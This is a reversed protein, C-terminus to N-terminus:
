QSPEPALIEQQAYRSEKSRRLSLRGGRRPSSTTAAPGSPRRCQAQSHCKGLALTRARQARMAEPDSVTTGSPLDTFDMIEFGYRHGKSLAQLVLTSPYSLKM